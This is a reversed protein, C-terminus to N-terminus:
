RRVTKGNIKRKWKTDKSGPIPPGRRARSRGTSHYKAQRKTKAIRPVDLRSTKERHHADCLVSCNDIKNSGGLADPIIHDYHLKDRRPCREGADIRECQGGARALAERKTARTFESRM